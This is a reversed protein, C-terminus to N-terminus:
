SHLLRISYRRLRMVVEEGLYSLLSSKDLDVNLLFAKGENMLELLLERVQRRPVNWGVNTIILFDLSHQEVFWGDSGAELFASKLIASQTIRKYIVNLLKIREETNEKGYLIVSQGDHCNALFNAVYFNLYGDVTRLRNEHPAVAQKSSNHFNTSPFLSGRAGQQNCLACELDNGGAIMYGHRACLYLGIFNKEIKQKM